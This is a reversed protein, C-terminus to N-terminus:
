RRPKGQAEDTAHDIVNRANSAVPALFAIALSFCLVGAGLTLGTPEDLRSRWLLPAVYIMWISFNAVSFVVAAMRVATNMRFFAAPAGAFVALAFLGAIQPNALVGIRGESYLAGVGALVVLLLSWSAVLCLLGAFAAAPSRGPMAATSPAEYPNAPM